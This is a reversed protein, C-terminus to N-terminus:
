QFCDYITFRALRVTTLPVLVRSSMTRVRGTIMRQSTTGCECNNFSKDGAYCKQALKWFSLPLNDSVLIIATILICTM